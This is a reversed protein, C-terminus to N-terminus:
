NQRTFFFILLAGRVAAREQRVFHASETPSVEFAFKREIYYGVPIPELRERNKFGGDHDM